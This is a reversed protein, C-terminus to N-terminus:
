HFIKSFPAVPFGLYIILFPKIKMLIFYPETMYTYIASSETLNFSFSVSNNGYTKRKIGRRLCPRASAM